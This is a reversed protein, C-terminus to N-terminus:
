VITLDYKNKVELRIKYDEQRLLHCEHRNKRSRAEIEGLLTVTRAQEEDLERIKCSIEFLKDKAEQIAAENKGCFSSNGSSKGVKVFFTFVDGVNINSVNFVKGLLDAVEKAIHKNKTTIRVGNKERILTCHSFNSYVYQNRAKKNARSSYLPGLVSPISKSDILINENTAGSLFDFLEMTNTVHKRILSVRKTIAVSKDTKTTKKFM